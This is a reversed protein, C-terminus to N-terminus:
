DAREFYCSTSTRNCRYCSSNLRCFPHSVVSGPVVDLTTFAYSGTESEADTLSNLLTSKGVSPLGVLAVTADGAKRVGYGSGKPGSSSTVVEERLQALKAKLKGVHHQTAKNYKTNAIEEEIEAIKDTLSM